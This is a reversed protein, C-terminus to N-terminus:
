VLIRSELLLSLLECDDSTKTQSDVTVRISEPSIEVRSQPPLAMFPIIEQRRLAIEYLSRFEGEIGAYDREAFVWGSDSAELQDRSISFERSDGFGPSVVGAHRISPFNPECDFLECVAQQLSLHRITNNVGQCWRIPM